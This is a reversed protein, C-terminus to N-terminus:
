CKDVGCLLSQAIRSEASEGRVESIAEADSRMALSARRPLVDVLYYLQAHDSIM